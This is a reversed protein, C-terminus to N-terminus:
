LLAQAVFPYGLDYIKSKICYVKNFAAISRIRAHTNSLHNTVPVIACRGYAASIM